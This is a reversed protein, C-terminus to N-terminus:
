VHHSMLVCDFIVASLMDTLITISSAELSKRVYFLQKSERWDWLISIGMKYSGKGIQTVTM